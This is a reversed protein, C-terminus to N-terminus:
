IPYRIGLVRQLHLLAGELDLLSWLDEEIVKGKSTWM